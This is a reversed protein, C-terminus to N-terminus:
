QWRRCRFSGRFGLGGGNGSESGDTATLTEVWLRGSTVWDSAQTITLAAADYGYPPRQSAFAYQRGAPTTVRLDFFRETTSNDPTIATGSALDGSAILHVHLGDADGGEAAYEVEVLDGDDYRRCEADNSTVQLAYDGDVMGVFENEEAADGAASGDGNVRVGCAVILTLLALCLVKLTTLHTAHADM